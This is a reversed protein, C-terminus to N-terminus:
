GAPPGCTIQARISEDTIETDAALLFAKGLILSLRDEEFPLYVRPGPRAPVICLYAGDPEMVVNASGLHIRYTRLDGRVVLFRDTLACRDAIKTRPLIRALAERRAEASPTLEGFAHEHRYARYPDERRQAWDPDAALSSVGVFLDVDRMAESFVVPPVETLPVERWGDAVRRAFRVRDTSAIGEDAHLHRFAVRWRGALVREAEDEGGGDWPGLLGSRWGRARFLAFMRRYHVLHAAFRESHTGAEEEAPTLRYVERFAQPFPQRIRREVILDRWRTIEEADSRIPHWLRVAADRGPEDVAAGTSDLLGEPSPLVARWRGPEAEVEWILRRVTTGALPHRVLDERWREYPRTAEAPLGGELARVLTSLHARVRKALNRLDKVTERHERRVQAPTSRRPRGDPGLWGLTAKEEEVTIVATCEGVPTRLVGDPPFGLDPMRLAVEVREALAADVRKLMRDLQKPVGRHRVTRRVARLSAATEPTPFDEVARTIEFLLAQSPLTRADEKPAVAVDHLLRDVAEPLWPEDRRLALRAARGLTRVEDATFAKDARYPVEGAQVAAARARAQGLAWRAFRAYGADAVLEWAWPPTPMAVSRFRQRGEVECFAVLERVPWTLLLELEARAIEGEVAFGAAVEAHLMPGALRAMALLRYTGAEEGRELMARVLTAARDTLGPPWPGTCRLLAGLGTDLDARGRRPLMDVLADFMASCAGPTFRPERESAAREVDSRLSRDASAYAVPLLAALEEDTLWSPDWVDPDPRVDPAEALAAAMRVARPSLVVDDSLYPM